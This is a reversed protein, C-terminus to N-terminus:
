VELYQQILMTMQKLKVPKSLYDTAGAELCKERDGDMTLATLAIIPINKSNDDIRIQRIAELGDVTPMQIDMLILDPHHSKTFAIAEVGNKAILTRYNKAELYSSFTILNAENDEAILILPNNNINTESFSIEKISEHNNLNSSILLSSSKQLDLDAFEEPKCVYPLRVTFNSGSGRQSRLIVDGRHLEVIKKVLALGLGTGEYQRNLNSDIQIFPKFLKAQDAESIGIGTDIVSICLYKQFGIYCGKQDDLNIPKRLRVLSIPESLNIDMPEYHVALTVQGAIPTFKIANNLLNILVQRIRREDLDMVGLDKPLRAKLRIQKKFAQQKVFTLSSQCLEEIDVKSIELDLKGAEIKSLELIENILSLLHQGSSAITAIASSQRDNLNGLIKDLLSESMGLIANLPTRLEHSMNALFEDKLRTARMLEANSYELRQEYDKQEQELRKRDSIDRFIGQALMKGDLEISSGTIEVPVKTGDKQLITSEIPHKYNEELIQKFHQRTIELTELPHIQSTHMEMLEEHSYGLLTEAMKNTSIIYGQDDALVIADSAGDMLARYLKERKELAIEAEKRDTIDTLTGIYGTLSNNEPDLEQVVQVYFWNISGDPRLHRGEGYNIIQKVPNPDSHSQIWQSIFLDRDEPHLTDTWGDGLASEAPYGTMESWRDNVYTCKGQKNFHFIAVPAATALSTYRTKSEQLDLEAQKHQPIDTELASRSALIEILKEKDLVGLLRDGNLVPLHRVQPPFTTLFSSINSIFNNLESEQLTVVPSMVEQLNLKDLNLRQLSIRVLDRETFIGLLTPEENQKSQSQTVLVYGENQMLAIAEMVSMDQSAMPPDRTIVSHLATIKSSFETTM